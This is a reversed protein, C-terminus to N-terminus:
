DVPLYTWKGDKIEVLTQARLDTGNHDKDSMTFVGQSGVFDKTQVLADGLAGRFEPTGPQAKAKAIAVAKEALLFADWATAGFLTRSNPGYKGEYAKLYTIGAPKVPNSDPLQEAVLVPSVPLRLGNLQAGGVRLVDVNAMGQNGYINGGYNLKRLELVPAVAPTGSAGIIIADPNTSLARLAQATVSTDTRAFREDTLVRVGNKDALKRMEGLFSDGFADNFGIFAVTKKGTKAMHRFIYHGMSTEAPALMFSWAKNGEPPTVIISSGALSIMPTKASGVVELIALSTQTITPGIVLDVKEEDILKRAARVANAPESADDLIVFRVPEGAITKPMIEITNKEPIGLSAAPGTLSLVAGIKVEARAAGSALVLVAAAVLSTWNRLM